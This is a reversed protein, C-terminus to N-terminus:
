ISNYEVCAPPYELIYKRENLTKTRKYRDFDSLRSYIDIFIRKGVIEEGSDLNDRYYDIVESACYTGYLVNHCETM